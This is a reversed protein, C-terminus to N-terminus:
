LYCSFRVQGSKHCIRVSAAKSFLCFSSISSSRLFSCTTVTLNTNSEM